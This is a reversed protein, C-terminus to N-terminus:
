PQKKSKCALIMANQMNFCQMECALVVPNNQESYNM